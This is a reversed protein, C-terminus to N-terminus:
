WRWIYQTSVTMCFRRKLGDYLFDQQFFRRRIWSSCQCCHLTQTLEAPAGEDQPPHLPIGSSNASTQQGVGHGNCITKGVCRKLKVTQRRCALVKLLKLIYVPTMPCRSPKSGSVTSIPENCKFYLVGILLHMKLYRSCLNILPSPSSTQELHQPAQFGLAGTHSLPTKFSYFALLGLDCHIDGVQSSPHKSPVGWCIVLASWKALIETADAPAVPGPDISSKLRRLKKPKWLPKNRM